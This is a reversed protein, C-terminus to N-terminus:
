RRELVHQGLEDVAADGNIDSTQAALGTLHESRESESMTGADLVPRSVM